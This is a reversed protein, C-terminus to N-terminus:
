NTIQDIRARKRFNRLLDHIWLEEDWSEDARQLEEFLKTKVRHLEKTCCRCVEFYFYRGLQFKGQCSRHYFHECQGCKSALKPELIRDCVECIPEGDREQQGFPLELSETAKSTGIESSDISDSDVPSTSDPATPRDQRNPRWLFHLNSMTNLRAESLSM